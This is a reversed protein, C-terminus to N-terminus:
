GSILIHQEYAAHAYSSNRAGSAAHPAGPADLFSHTDARNSSASVIMAKSNEKDHQAAVHRSRRRVAADSRLPVPIPPYPAPWQASTSEQGGLTTTSPSRTRVVEARPRPSHGRPPVHAQLPAPESWGSVSGRGSSKSKPQSSMPHAELPVVAGSPAKMTPYPYQQEEKWTSLGKAPPSAGVADSSRASLVTTAGHMETRVRSDATHHRHTEEAKVSQPPSPAAGTDARDLAAMRSVASPKMLPTSDIGPGPTPPAKHARSPPGAGSSSKHPMSKLSEGPHWNPSPARKLKVEMEDDMPYMVNRACRREDTVTRKDSNDLGPASSHREYSIPYTLKKASYDEELSSGLPIRDSVVANSTRERQYFTPFTASSTASSIMSARHHHSM